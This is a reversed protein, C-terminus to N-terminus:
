LQQNNPGSIQGMFDRPVQMSAVTGPGPDCNCQTKKMKQQRKKEQEETSELFAHGYEGADCTSDQYHVQHINKPQDDRRKIRRSDMDTPEIKRCGQPNATKPQGQKQKPESLIRQQWLIIRAEGAELDM